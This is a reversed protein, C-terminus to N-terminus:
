RHVGVRGLRRGGATRASSREAAVFHLERIIVEHACKEAEKVDMHLVRFSRENTHCAGGESLTSISAVLLTNAALLIVVM